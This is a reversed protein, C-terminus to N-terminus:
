AEKFKSVPLGGPPISDNKKIPTNKVLTRSKSAFLYLLIPWELRLGNKDIENKSQEQTREILNKKPLRTVIDNQSICYVVCGSVLFLLM